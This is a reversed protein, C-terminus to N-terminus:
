IFLCYYQAYTPEIKSYQDYARLHTFYFTSVNASDCPIPFVSDSWKLASCKVHIGGLLGLRLHPKSNITLTDSVNTISFRMHSYPCSECQQRYHQTRFRTLYLLLSAGLELSCVFKENTKRSNTELCHIDAVSNSTKRIPQQYLEFILFDDRLLGKPTIDQKSLGSCRASWIM